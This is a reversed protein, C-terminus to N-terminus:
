KPFWVYDYGGPPNYSIPMGAEGSEGNWYFPIFSVHGDVFSVVNKANNFQGSKKRDHGSLGIAASLECALALRSPEQVASFRKEAVRTEKSNAAAGNFIYSSYHTQKLRYFGNGTVPAPRFFDQIAPLGCSFNDAPCVFLQDNTNAGNRSLYPQIGDKYSFYIHYDAATGRVADAHDDAYMLVATSIQRLNSICTTKRAADQARGLASLIM